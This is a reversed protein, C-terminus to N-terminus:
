ECMLESDMRGIAVCSEIFCPFSIAHLLLTLPEYILRLDTGDAELHRGAPLMARMPRSSPSSLWTQPTNNAEGAFDASFM